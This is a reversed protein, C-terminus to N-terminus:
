VVAPCNTLDPVASADVGACYADVLPENSGGGGAWGGGCPTAGRETGSPCRGSEVLMQRVDATANIGLIIAAVGAVQPSSRSTGSRSSNAGGGLAASFIHVGPAAVDAHRASFPAYSNGNHSLASASIVGAYKAPAQVHGGYNNGAAAVVVVGSHVVREIAAKLAKSGPGAISLNVIDINESLTPHNRNYKLVYNLGCIVRSWTTADSAGPFVKVALVAADRAVGAKGVANSTTATGHGNRDRAGKQGVCGGFGRGLINGGDEQFYPHSRMVGTDLIAIRARQATGDGTFGTTDRAMHADDVTLQTAQAPADDVVHVVRDHEVAEVRPDAALRAAESSPGRFAFGDLATDFVLGSRGGYESAIARASPGALTTPRLTVIYSHVTGSAFASTLPGALGSAVLAISTALVLLRRRPTM